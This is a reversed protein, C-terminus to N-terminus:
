RSSSVVALERLATLLVDIAADLTLHRQAFAQARAGIQSAEIPNDRVWKAKDVLDSLNSAVPVYHVFPQLSSYYFAHHKREAYLVPRSSHLLLSSTGFLGRGAPGGPVGMAQDDRAHQADERLHAPSLM